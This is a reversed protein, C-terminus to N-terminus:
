KNILYVLLTAMSELLERADKEAARRIARVGQYAEKITLIINGLMELYAELHDSKEQDFADIAMAGSDLAFGIGEGTGPALLGAADGALLVGGRGLPPLGSFLQRYLLPELCGRKFIVEQICLGFHRKLLDLGWNRIHLYDKIPAGVEFVMKEQKFHLAAYYPAFAKDTFVHIYEPALEATGQMVEQYGCAYFVKLGSYVRKRVRSFGGDAGVIKRAFFTREEGFTKCYVKYGNSCCEFNVFEVGEFAEVGAKVAQELMWQDLECRWFAPMPWDVTCAPGAGVHLCFGRYNQHFLQDPPWGAFAQRAARQATKGVILGSCVKARPFHKKEVLLTKLGKGAARVGAAAGAPGGGIIAVDYM